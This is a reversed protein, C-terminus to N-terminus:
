EKGKVLALLEESSKQKLEEKVTNVMKIDQQMTVDKNDRWKHRNKMNFIWVTANFFKSHMGEIAVKEWFLLNKNFGEKKAESFEEHRKEWEYLTDLHVGGCVAPFSDYSLGSAMHEILM